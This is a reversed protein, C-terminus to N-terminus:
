YELEREEISNLSPASTSKRGCVTCQYYTPYSVWTHVDKSHVCGCTTCQLWHKLTSSQYSSGTQVHSLNVIRIVGSTMYFNYEGYDYYDHLIEEWSSGDLGKENAGLQSLIGGNDRAYSNIAVSQTHFGPFLKYDCSLMVYDWIENVASRVNETITITPVYHQDHPTAKVDYEYNPYKQVLTRNWGLNKVAMAVAKRAEQNYSDNGFEQTTVKYCYTKFDVPTSKGQSNDNTDEGEAYINVNITDPEEWVGFSPASVPTDYSLLEVEGDGTNPLMFNYVADRFMGLICSEEEDYGVIIIFKNYGESLYKTERYVDIDLICEWCEVSEMNKCKKELEADMYSSVDVNSYFVIEANQYNYFGIHGLRNDENELFGIISASENQEFFEPIKEINESDLCEVYNQIIEPLCEANEMNGNASSIIGINILMAFGAVISCVKTFWNIM